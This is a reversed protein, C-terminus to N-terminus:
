VYALRVRRGWFSATLLAASILLYLTASQSAPTTGMFDLGPSQHGPGIYWWV